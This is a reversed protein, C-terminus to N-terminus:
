KTTTDSGYTHEDVECFAKGQKSKTLVNAWMEETPCHQLKIEGHGLKVKIFFYSEKIHKTHKSTSCLGNIELLIVSKIDQYLLSPSLNYGQCELFSKTWLIHTLGDNIGIIESKTSSKSNIKQKCSLTITMGKGLWMAAGTYSKCDNHTAHSADVWWKMVLVEDVELCLNSHITGNLYKLVQKLKEWNDEDPEKVRTTLFVVTTQIDRRARTSLFLLQTVTHHFATAQKEPLLKAKTM